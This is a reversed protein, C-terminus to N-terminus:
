TGCYKKGSGCPCPDIRGVKPAAPRVSQRAPRPRSAGPAAQHGIPKKAEKEVCARWSMEAVTGTILHYRDALRELAAQKGMAYAEEVDERAIMFTEVLDDAYAQEMDAYVEGPYLDVCRTVLSTWIYDPEQM